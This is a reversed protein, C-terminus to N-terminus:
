FNSMNKKDMLEVSPQTRGIVTLINETSIKEQNMPGFESRDRTSTSENM